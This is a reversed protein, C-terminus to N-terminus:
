SFISGWRVLIGLLAWKRSVYQLRSGGAIARCALAAADRPSSVWFHGGGKMMDTDVFGPRIDTVVVGSKEKKARKALGSLYMIQYAKSASYAPSSPNGLLGAVSTIAALRGGGSRAFRTYAWDAARTFAAVNLTATTQETGPDLDPNPYGTGASIVFLDLGGLGDALADLRGPLGAVDTADFASTRISDPALAAVERLLAERRGTIGVRWGERALWLAMERGIGSSAGLIIANKTEATM